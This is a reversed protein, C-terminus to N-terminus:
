SKKKLLEYAKIRKRKGDVTESLQIDKVEFYDELDKAKPVASYGVSQYIRELVDKADALKIKDGEKFCFYIERRLINYDFTVIGLEKKIRSVGYGLENLRKPGLALYYSKVEDSDPIQALAMEIVESNFGCECLYKLKGYITTIQNYDNFFDIVEKNQDENTTYIGTRIREEYDLYRQIMDSTITSDNKLYDLITDRSIRDGLSEGMLKYYDELLKKNDELYELGKFNLVYSLVVKALKREERIDKDERNPNKPLNELDISKIDEFFDIIKQDFQFWERGYDPYLLNRFKYQIRKEIDEDLNPIQYLVKRTPNYVKYETFRLKSRSDETYGIKLLYFFKGSENVGASKILYIM